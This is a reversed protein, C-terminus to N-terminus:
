LVVIRESEVGSKRLLEVHEEVGALFAVVIKGSYESVTEVPRVELDFFSRGEGHGFLADISVGSGRALKLLVEAIDGTGYVAAKGTNEEALKKLCLDCREMVYSNYRAMNKFFEYAKNFKSVFDFVSRPQRSCKAVKMMFQKKLMKLLTAALRLKLAPNKMIGQPMFNSRRRKNLSELTWQGLLEEPVAQFILPEYIIDDEKLRMARIATNEALPMVRGTRKAELATTSMNRGDHPGLYNNKGDTGPHWVHYLFEKDHWVETKGANILRFTLEYPGCVHGAYDIHEDAGGVAILDERLACMCAGYNLTHLPDENEYLGTTMGHTWNICGKGTVEEIPPYNFPYFRKGTNRVEDLHLVINDQEEFKRVIAEAFGPKVIADSDCLAVVKGRAAIIGINYMLHKHYYVNEPMGMVIWKDVLPPRGLRECEKTAEELAAPRAGYYEIWIVEYKDRELTQESLYKLTHFSERCSWDLLVFSILPATKSDNEFLIEM